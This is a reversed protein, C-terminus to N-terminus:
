QAPVLQADVNMDAAGAVYTGVATSSGAQIGNTFQRGYAGFNISRTEGAALNFSMVPVEAGALAAAKDHLQIFRAAINGNHITLHFLRAPTASVTFSTVAIATKNQAPSSTPPQLMNM